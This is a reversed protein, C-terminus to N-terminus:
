DKVCRVSIAADGHSQRAIPDSFFRRIIQYNDAATSSSWYFGYYGTIPIDDPTDHILGGCLQINLGSSGGVLLKKGITGREIKKDADDAELKSMGQNIELEKWDEDTPIHWGVPAINRSDTIIKQTYLLGLEKTRFPSYAYSYFGTDWSSKDVQKKIPDGNRFHTVRLNSTMWKQKGITIYAYINGDVDTVSDFPLSTFSVENGYAVGYYNIVYARLYYKTNSALGYLTTEYIGGSQSESDVKQDEITPNPSTSYVIGKEFIGAGGDNIVSGGGVASQSITNNFASTTVKAMEGKGTTFSIENGYGTGESNKAFARAYYKTNPELDSLHQIFKRGPSLSRAVLDEAKPNPHTAYYIGGETIELNGDTTIEVEVDATYLEVETAVATKLSPITIIEVQKEKKCCLLTISIAIFLSLYNKM